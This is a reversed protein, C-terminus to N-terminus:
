TWRPTAAAVSWRRDQAECNLKTAEAEPGLAEGLEAAAELFQAIGGAPALAGRDGVAGIVRDELLPAEGVVLELGDGDVVGGAEGIIQLEVISQDPPTARAAGWDACVDLRRGSVV